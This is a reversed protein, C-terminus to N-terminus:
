EKRRETQIIINNAFKVTAFFRNEGQDLIWQRSVFAALTETPAFLTSAKQALVPFFSTATRLLDCIISHLTDCRATGV